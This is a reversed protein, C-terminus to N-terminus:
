VVSAESWLHEYHVLKIDAVDPSLPALYTDKKVAADKISQGLVWCVQGDIFIARDHISKSSRVEVTSQQQANFRTAAARLDASAKGVLLRIGVGPSTKSLYEDFVLADMYPDLILLSTQASSLLKSLAKFFDYVAGAGFAHGGDRSVRLELDALARHVTGLM